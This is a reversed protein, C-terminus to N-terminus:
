SKEVKIEKKKWLVLERANPVKRELAEAARKAVNSRTVLVVVVASKESLGM